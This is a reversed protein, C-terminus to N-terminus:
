RKKKRKKKKKKATGDEIRQEAELQNARAIAEKRQQIKREREDAEAQLRGKEAAQKERFSNICEDRVNDPVVIPVADVGGAHYYSELIICAADADLTGQLNRSPDRSHVRAAAEKSTYREDWWLVSVDPVLEVLM